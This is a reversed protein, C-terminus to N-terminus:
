DFDIKDMDVAYWKITWNFGRSLYSKISIEGRHSLLYRENLNKFWKGDTGDQWNAIIKYGVIRKETDNFSFTHRQYYFTEYSKSKQQEYCVAGDYDTIGYTWEYKSGSDMDEWYPADAANKVLNYQYYRKKILNLVKVQEDLSKQFEDIQSPYSVFEVQHAIIDQRLRNANAVVSDTYNKPCAYANSVHRWLNSFLGWIKMFITPDIPVKPPIEDNLMSYHTLKCSLNVPAMHETFWKLAKGVNLVDSIDSYIPTGTCGEYFVKVNTSVNHTSMATSFKTDMAFGYLDSTASVAAKFSTMSAESTSTCNYVAIFKSGRKVDSVFYDGYKDRFNQRSDIVKTAEDTLAYLAENSYSAEIVTHELVISLSKSTCKVENMYSLSGKLDVNGMNYHGSVAVEFARAYESENSIIKASTQVINPRPESKKVLKVASKKVRNTLADMGIGEAYTSNWPVDSIVSELYTESTNANSVFDNSEVAYSEISCADVEGEALLSIDSITEYLEHFDAINAAVTLSKGGSDTVTGPVISMGENTQIFIKCGKNLLDDNSQNCSDELQFTFISGM